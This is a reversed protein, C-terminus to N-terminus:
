KLILSGWGKPSQHFGNAIGSNWHLQQQRGKYTGLDIAIEIDLNVGAQPIIDFFANLPIAMEVLYGGEQTNISYNITEIKTDTKWNWIYPEPGCNIGIHQDSLWLFQRKPDAEPNTSFAIEIADGEWLKGNEKSNQMPTDDIINFIFYISDSSYTTSFKHDDLSYFQQEKWDEKKGDISITNNTKLAIAEKKLKGSFPILSISQIEIEGAAFVQIMLQKINSVDVDNEEFPFLQLPIHVKTWEKTIEKETLFSKNYGLWAQGGSYDEFCFAWPINTFAENTSRVTLELALTDFVYGIDKGSWSDWGLGMGVWDCDDQDKNWKLNLINSVGNSILQSSICKEGDSTWFDSLSEDFISLQTYGRVNYEEEFEGDYLGVQKFGIKKYNVTVPELQKSEQAFSEFTILLFLLSLLKCISQSM